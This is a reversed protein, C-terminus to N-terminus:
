ENRGGNWDDNERDATMERGSVPDRDQSPDRDLEQLFRSRRRAFVYGVNILLALVIGCVVIIIVLKGTGGAKETLRSLFDYWAMSEM